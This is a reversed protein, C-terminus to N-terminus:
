RADRLESVLARFWSHKMAPQRVLLQVFRHRENQTSAQNYVSLALRLAQLHVEQRPPELMAPDGWRPPPNWRSVKPQNNAIYAWLTGPASVNKVAQPQFDKLWPAHQQWRWTKPSTHTQWTIGVFRTKRALSKQDTRTTTAWRTLCEALTKFTSGGAVVDVFAIGRPKSNIHTPTLGLSELQAYLSAVADPHDRRIDEFSRGRLSINLLALRGAWSTGQFAGSLYDFVSEPSRGVFILETDGAMVLVRACCHRLDDLFTPYTAAPEGSVLQGLQELRHLNWRFPPTM